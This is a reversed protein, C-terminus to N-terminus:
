EIELIKGESAVKDTKGEVKAEATLYGHLKVIIRHKKEADITFETTTPEGQITIINKYVDNEVLQIKVELPRRFDDSIDTPLQWTLKVQNGNRTYDLNEIAPLSFEFDKADIINRDYCSTLLGLSLSVTLIFIKLRM